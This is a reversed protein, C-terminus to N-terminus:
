AQRGPFQMEKLGLLGAWVFSCQEPPTSSLTRGSSDRGTLTVKIWLRCRERVCTQQLLPCLKEDRTGEAM